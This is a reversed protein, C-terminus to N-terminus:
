TSSTNQRGGGRRATSGAVEAVKAKVFARHAAAQDREWGLCETLGHRLVAARCNELTRCADLPMRGNFLRSPSLMWTMADGVGERQFRAGAETSVLVVRIIERLSLEVTPDDPSGPEFPDCRDLVRRDKWADPFGTGRRAAM